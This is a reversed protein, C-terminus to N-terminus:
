SFPIPIQLINTIKIGNPDISWELNKTGLVSM